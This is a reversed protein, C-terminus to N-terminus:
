GRKRDKLKEPNPVIVQDREDKDAVVWNKGVSEQAHQALITLTPLNHRGTREEGENNRHNHEEAQLSEKNSSKSGARDLLSLKPM